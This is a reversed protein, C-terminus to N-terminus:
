DIKLDDYYKIKDGDIRWPFYKRMLDKIIEISNKPWPNETRTERDHLVEELDKSPYAADLMQLVKPYNMIRFKTNNKFVNEVLEEIFNQVAYVDEKYNMGLWAIINALQDESCDGPNDKYRAQIDKSLKKILIQSGAPDNVYKKPLYVSKPDKMVADLNIKDMNTELWDIFVAVFDTDFVGELAEQIEDISLESIDSIKKGEERSKKIKAKGLRSFAKQWRRPSIPAVQASDESADKVMTHWRVYEGNGDRASEDNDDFIFELILEDCGKKRAWKKWSEPDPILQYFGEWRDKAAPTASWSNWVEAVEADDCPRNSCAIIAWKSGLMWGNLERELLFNMLQKFVDPDCRLLEDFLIIGGGGTKYTHGDKDMYVGGNSYDDLMKDIKDNGTKRWSPLWNKPADSSKFQGSSQITAAIQKQEGSSLKNFYEGSEPFAESFDRITSIVDNETPMTPMMFDGATINACNISILSIMKSKDGKAVDQNFKDVVMQPVTSKGIGPAGFVLINGMPDGIEVDDGDVSVTSKGRNISWDEILGGILKEFKEINIAKVKGLQSKDLYSVREKAVDKWAENIKEFEEDSYNYHEKIISPISMFNQYEISNKYEKKLEWDFFKDGDPGDDYTGEEFTPASNNVKGGAETVSDNLANTGLVKVDSSGSFNDMVAQPSVVPLLHGDGDFIAIFNKIKRMCIKFFSKAKEWGKKITDKIFGENAKQLYEDRSM